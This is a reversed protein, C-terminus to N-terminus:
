IYYEEGIVVRQATGKTHTSRRAERCATAVRRLADTQSTAYVMVVEHRLVDRLRPIPPRVVMYLESQRTGM